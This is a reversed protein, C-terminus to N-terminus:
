EFRKLYEEIEAKKRAEHELEANILDINEQASATNNEV